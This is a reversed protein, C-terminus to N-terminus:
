KYQVYTYFELLSKLKRSPDFTRHFVIIDGDMLEDLGQDLMVNFDTIKEFQGQQVEEYLTIPVDSSWNARRRCEAAVEDLEDM